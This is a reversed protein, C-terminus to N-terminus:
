PNKCRFHITAMVSGKAVAFGFIRPRFKVIHLYAINSVASTLACACLAARLSSWPIAVIVLQFVNDAYIHRKNVHSSPDILEFGHAHASKLVDGVTLGITDSEVWVACKLRSCASFNKGGNHVPSVNGLGIKRYIQSNPAIAWVMKEVRSRRDARLM